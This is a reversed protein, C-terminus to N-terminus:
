RNRGIRRPSAWVRLRDYHNLMNADMSEFEWRQMTDYAMKEEAALVQLHASPGFLKLYLKRATAMVVYRKVVEPLDELALYYTIDAEVTEDTFTYTNNTLDYLKANKIIVQRDDDRLEVDFVDDAIDIEDSVNPTLEVKEYRNYYNRTTAIQHLTQDLTGSAALVDQRTVAVLDEVEAVGIMTLVENIVDLKALKAAM